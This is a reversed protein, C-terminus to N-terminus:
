ATEGEDTTNQNSQTPERVAKVLVRMSEVKVVRVREGRDIFGLDSTVEVLRGNIEARGIPVLPTDAVGEDGVIPRTSDPPAMARLVSDNDEPVDRSTATLVLRNMLPISGFHKSIFYMGVLSTTVSLLVTVFGLLMSSETNTTPMPNDPVFSGVLGAFLAIIGVIGFIGFGPLVFMEVGILVIGILIAAFEWWGALGVLMPPAILGFLAALAIAGPVVMGPSVMEIFLGLLFLVILLGRVEFRTMFRVLHESWTVDLTTMESAGFFAKLEADNKIVASAVQLTLLERDRLVIPTTGDSVYGVYEWDAADETTFDPRELDPTGLGALENSIDGSLDDLLPTAPTFTPAGAPPATAGSADSAANESATGEGTEDRPGTLAKSPESAASGLSAVMPKGRKPEGDIVLTDDDGFLGVFEDEVVTFVKGDAKRRVAWLEVGDIIMGQLLFPDQGNRAASDWMDSLLPTLIKRREDLTQLGRMRGAAPDFTIPFADGLAAPQDIVIERCALASIAGGSYADPNVWAVTNAIPSSKIADTIDLVAGVEGGPSDIEFVIAGVGADAATQIRRQVSMSTYRDIAGEIPIIAVREAQRFAPVSTPTNTAPTTTTTESAPQASALVASLATLVAAM